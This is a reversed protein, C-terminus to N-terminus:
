APAVRIIGRRHGAHADNIFGRDLGLEHHLLADDERRSLEGDAAGPGAYM